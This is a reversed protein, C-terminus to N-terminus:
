PTGIDVGAQKLLDPRHMTYWMAIGDLPDPEPESRMGPITLQAFRKVFSAAEATTALARLQAVQAEAERTAEAIRM